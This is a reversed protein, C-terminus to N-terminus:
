SYQGELTADARQVAAVFRLIRDEDKIGPESEVGSSVDVASPRLQTIAAGVNEDNLGGALVLPLSTGAQALRWDFTEGTGGPVGERYTDLLIGSAAAFRKGVAALDTGARMQVTKIWPREFEACFQPTEDGHFQLLGLPVLRLIRRIQAEDMDVFLGVLTVFPPVVAAIERAQEAV